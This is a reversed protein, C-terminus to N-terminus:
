KKKSAKDAVEIVQDTVDPADSFYLAASADLILDYGHDKGFNVIVKGLFDNVQGLIENESRQLEHELDEKMRSAERQKREFDDRAKRREEESLVMARKVLDDQMQKIEAAKADLKKQAENKKNKLKEAAEKGVKTSALLRQPVLVAIKLDQAAASVRLIPMCVLGAALLTSGILKVLHSRNM